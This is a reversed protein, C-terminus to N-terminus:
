RRTAGGRTPLPQKVRFEGPLDTCHRHWHTDTKEAQVGELPAQAPRLNSHFRRHLQASSPLTSGGEPPAHAPGLNLCLWMPAHARGLM